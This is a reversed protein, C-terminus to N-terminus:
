RDSVVVTVDAAATLVSDDAYARVVYTGPRSFTATTMARGANIPPTAPDFTVTGVGRYHIWTVTLGVDPRPQVVAQTVPNPKPIRQAAGESTRRRRPTPFGDDSVSVTLGVGEGVTTNRRAAGVLEITPPKNPEGGGQGMDQIRNERIVVDNLEYDRKLSGYAKDTRGHATLTWVLDKSGWDPPVVVEFVFMQRRPFFHTPQGRDADGPEFRNVEGVAVDLEEEYNRNMYGFVMTASGDPNKKWGEYVPVVNQGTAYQIQTEVKDTAALAMIALLALLSSRACFMIM